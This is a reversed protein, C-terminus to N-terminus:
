FLKSILKYVIWLPWLFIMSVFTIYCAARVAKEAESSTANPNKRRTLRLAEQIIEERKEQLKQNMVFAFIFGVLLYTITLM